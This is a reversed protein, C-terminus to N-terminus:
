KLQEDSRPSTEQMPEVAAATTPRDPSSSGRQVGFVAIILLAWPLLNAGIFTETVNVALVYVGLAFAWISWLSPAHWAARGILWIAYALFAGLTVLGLLGTGILVEFYGSHAEGVIVARIGLMWMFGDDSWLSMFGWGHLPRQRFADVVVDWIETRGSLTTVRYSGNFVSARETAVLVFFVVAGLGFVAATVRRAGARVGPVTLLLVLASFGAIVSAVLSSLSGSWLAMRLDAMAFMALAAVAVWRVPSRASSAIWVALVLCTAAALVAVPGLSNRNFYIGALDGNIDFALPWNRQRAVFSAAVGIHLAGWLSVTWARTTLAVGIFACATTGVLMMLGQELTRVWWESWMTSALVVALFAGLLGVRVRDTLVRLRWPWAVVVIASATLTFTAQVWIDDIFDGTVPAWEKRVWFLPGKTLIFLYFPVLVLLM